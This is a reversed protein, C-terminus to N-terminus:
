RPSGHANPAGAGALERERSQARLWMAWLLLPPIVGAALLLWLNVDLSWVTTAGDVVALRLAGDGISASASGSGGPTSVRALPPIAPGVIALLLALWWGFWALLLRGPRWSALFSVIRGWSNFELATYDDVSPVAM